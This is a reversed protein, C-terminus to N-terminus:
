RQDVRLRLYRQSAASFPFLSRVTVEEFGDSVPVPDGVQETITVGSTWTTASLDESEEVYYILGSAEYGNETVVFGGSRRRYTLQLYDDGEDTSVRSASIPHTSSDDSQAFQLLNVVGDGDADGAPGSITSDALQAETFQNEQWRMFASDGNYIYAIEETTLAGDWIKVEDIEGHFWSPSRPTAPITVTTTEGTIPDIVEETGGEAAGSGNAGDTGIVIPLSTSVSGVESIDVTGVFQGNKYFTAFGDRDHVVLLHHWVGDILANSGSRFIKTESGDSFSWQWRRNPGAGIHWGPNSDLQSNKNGIIAPDNASGGLHSRDPFGDDNKVWVSVTFDIDDAFDLLEDIGLSVYEHTDALDDFSLSQNIVGSTYSPSGTIIGDNEIGSFDTVDGDFKIHAVMGDFPRLRLAATCTLDNSLDADTGLARLIYVTDGGQPAAKDEYFDTTASVSAIVVGDRLIEYGSLDIYSGLTWSLTVEDPTDVTNIHCELNSPPVAPLLTDNLSQIEDDLLRRQWVQFQDVGGLFSPSTLTGDTAIGTALADVNGIDTMSQSSIEQGDFYLTLEGDRDHVATILHWFGDNILGADYQFSVETLGDSIDWIWSGNTNATLAWGPNLSNSSDKNGAIIRSDPLTDSKVLLSITFDTEAGFNLDTPKGLSLSEDDADFEAYSGTLREPYSLEGIANAHNDKGSTDNLIIDIPDPDDERPIPSTPTGPITRIDLPLLAVLGTTTSGKFLSASCTLPPCADGETGGYTHITYDFDYVGDDTLTPTDTFTTTALPLDTVHAGDRMIRIGWADLNQPAAWTLNVTSTGTECTLQEVGSSNTGDGAAWLNAIALPFLLLKKM